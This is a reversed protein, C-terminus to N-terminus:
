RCARVKLTATHASPAASDNGAKVEISLPEDATPCDVSYAQSHIEGPGMARMTISGALVIAGKRRVTIMVSTGAPLTTPRTNRAIALFHFASDIPKVDEGPKAPKGDPALGAARQASLIADLTRQDRVPQIEVNLNQSLAANARFAALEAPSPRMSPDSPDVLRETYVDQNRNGCGSALLVLSLLLPCVIRHPIM